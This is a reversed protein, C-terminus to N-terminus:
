MRRLQAGDLLMLDDVGNALARLRLAELRSAQAEHTAVIVKGCRLHPVGKQACYEYLLVKGRVCLEANVSGRPYYIGAHIVESNRSSTEMGIHPNRELVIVERGRRALARGIALGVVGAGVVLTQVSETM